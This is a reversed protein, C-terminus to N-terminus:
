TVSPTTSPVPDWREELDGLGSLRLLRLLIVPPGNEPQAMNLAPRSRHRYCVRLAGRRPPGLFLCSPCATEVLRSRPCSVCCFSNEARLKQRLVFEGMFNIKRPHAVESSSIPPLHQQRWSFMIFNQSFTTVTLRADSIIILM